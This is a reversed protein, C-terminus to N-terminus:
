PNLIPWGKKNPDNLLFLVPNIAIFHRTNFNRSIIGTFAKKERLIEWKDVVPFQLIPFTGGHGAIRQATQVSSLSTEEVSFFVSPYQLDYM